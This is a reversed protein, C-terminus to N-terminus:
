RRVVPFRGRVCTGGGPATEVTCIGGVEAARERMGLFGVGTRHSPDIGKGDDCISLHLTDGDLAVVIRCSRAEAHTRANEIAEQGIRFAAVEVAAPLPGLDHPGEVIVDLDGSSLNVKTAHQRLAGLLGLEDLAPPRLDYVLRRLDTGANELESQLRGLLTVAGARDGPLISRAAELGLAVGRIAPQLGDHLDRRLRRREEEQASVLRERSRQLDATLRLAYAAAGAQAALDDLLRRDVADFPEDGRRSGIAM